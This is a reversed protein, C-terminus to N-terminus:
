REQSSGFRSLPSYGWCPRGRVVACSFLPPSLGEAEEDVPCGPSTVQRVWIGQGGLEQPCQSTSWLGGVEPSLHTNDVSLLVERVGEACMCPPTDPAPLKTGLLVYPDFPADGGGAACLTGWRVCRGEVYVSLPCKSPSRPQIFHQQFCWGWVSCRRKVPSGAHTGQGLVLVQHGKGTGAALTPCCCMSTFGSSQLPM